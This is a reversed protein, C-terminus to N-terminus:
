VEKEKELMNAKAVRFLVEIFRCETHYITFM